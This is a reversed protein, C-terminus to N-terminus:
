EKGVRREESRTTIVHPILTKTCQNELKQLSYIIFWQSDSPKVRTKLTFAHIIDGIVLILRINELKRM